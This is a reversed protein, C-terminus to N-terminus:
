SENKISKLQKDLFTDKPSENSNDVFQETDFDLHNIGHLKLQQLFWKAKKPIVDSISDDEVPNNIRALFNGFTTLIYHYGRDGNSIRKKTSCGVVYGYNEYAKHVEIMEEFTNESALMCYIPKNKRSRMGPPKKM